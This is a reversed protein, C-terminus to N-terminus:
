LFPVIDGFLLPKNETQQPTGRERSHPTQQLERIPEVEVDWNPWCFFVISYRDSQTANNPNGIVRHLAEKFV